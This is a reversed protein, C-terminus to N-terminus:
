MSALRRFLDALVQLDGPQVVRRAADFEDEALPVPYRGAWQVFAQLRRVLDRELDSLNLHLRGELLRELNHTAFAKNIHGQRASLMGVTGVQRLLAAKAQLEIAYGALLMFSAGGDALQSDVSSPEAGIDAHQETAGVDASAASSRQHSWLTMAADMLNAAANSWLRRDRAAAAFASERGSMDNAGVASFLRSAASYVAM